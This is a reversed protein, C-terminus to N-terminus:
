NILIVKSITIIIMNKIEQKQMNMEQIHNIQKSIINFIISKIILQLKPNAFKNINTLRFKVLTQLNCM